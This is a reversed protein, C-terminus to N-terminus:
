RPTTNAFRYGCSERIVLEHPVDLRINKSRLNTMRDILMNISLRALDNKSVDITTLSPALYQSIDINDVSAIAIDQPVRIGFEQAARLVGCAIIDSACILARPMQNTSIMEKMAQYGNEATDQASHIWQLQRPIGHQLLCELYSTYRHHENRTEHPSAVPGIFGIERYHLSYFHEFLTVIAKVGDCIVEDTDYELYNVGTYVMHPITQKLYTLLDADLRGMIIAGSVPQSAVIERLKAEGVASESIIYEVTYNNRYIESQLCDLMEAFFPHAFTKASSVLIIGISHKRPATPTVTELFALAEDDLPYGLRQMSEAIKKQTSEKVRKVPDCSIARSVTSISVGVDQAIDKLTIAM